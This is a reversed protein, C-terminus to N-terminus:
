PRAGPGGFRHVHPLRRPLPRTQSDHPSPLSPQAHTPECSDYPTGHTRPRGRRIAGVSMLRGIASHIRRGVRETAAESGVRFPIGRDPGRVGRGPRSIWL